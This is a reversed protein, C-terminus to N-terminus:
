SNVDNITNGIVGLEDITWTDITADDDLDAIATALFTTGGGGITVCYTYLSGDPIEVGINNLLANRDACAIFVGNEQYYAQEGTYIERLIGVVNSQKSDVTSQTVKNETCGINLGIIAVIIMLKILVFDKYKYYKSFM